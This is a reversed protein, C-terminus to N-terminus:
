SRPVPTAPYSGTRIYTIIRAAFEDYTYAAGIALPDNAPRRAFCDRMQARTKYFLCEDDWHPLEVDDYMRQDLVVPICGCAAIEALRQSNIVHHTASVAYLSQNYVKAVESGHPLEGKYYPAVVPNSAWWRGYVEVEYPLDAALSCLWEVSVDRALYPLLHEFIQLYDVDHELALNRLLQEPIDGGAEMRKRLGAVITRGVAGFKELRESYSSGIFVIKKRSETPTTSFFVKPDICFDQRYVKKAGTRYLYSDFQIQTSLVLDRKRWPLPDGTAITDMLDQWWIINYTDEHLFDNGTQNINVIANPVMAAYESYLHFSTLQEKDDNETLLCIDCGKRQLAVALSKACYQMVTTLRNAILFIKLPRQDSLLPQRSRCLAINQRMEEKAAQLAQEFLTAMEIAKDVQSKQGPDFVIKTPLRLRTKTILGMMDNEDLHILNEPPDAFPEGMYYCLQPASIAKTQQIRNNELATTMARTRDLFFEDRCDEKIATIPPGSYHHDFLDKFIGSMMVRGQQQFINSLKFHANVCKSDKQLAKLLVDIAQPPRNQRAYTEGLQVLAEVFDPNATVAKNFNAEAARHNGKQLMTQGLMFFIVPDGPKFAAARSFRDTARDLDDLEYAIKGSIFLLDPNDPLLRCLEEYLADAEALSGLQYLRAARELKEKITMEM